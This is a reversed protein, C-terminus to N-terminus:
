RRVKELFAIASLKEDVPAAADNIKLEADLIQAKLEADKELRLRAAEIKAQQKEAEAQEKLLLEENYKKLAKQREYHSRINFHLYPTSLYHNLTAEHCYILRMENIKLELNEQIELSGIFILASGAPHRKNFMYTKLDDVTIYFVDDTQFGPHDVYPIVCLKLRGTEEDTGCSRGILIDYKRTKENWNYSGCKPCKRPIGDYQGRSRWAWNCKECVAENSIENFTM